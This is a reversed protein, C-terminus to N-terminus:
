FAKKEELGCFLIGHIGNATHKPIRRNWIQEFVSPPVTDEIEDIFAVDAGGRFIQSYEDETAQFIDYVCNIADDIVQINKM